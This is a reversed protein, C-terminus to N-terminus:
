FTTFIQESTWAHRTFNRAYRANSFRHNEVLIGVLVKIKLAVIEGSTFYIQSKALRSM